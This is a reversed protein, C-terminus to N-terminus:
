ASCGQGIKESTETETKYNIIYLCEKMLEARVILRQVRRLRIRPRALSTSHALTKPVPRTQSAKATAKRIGLRKLRSKPSPARVAAKMGVKVSYRSFFPSSSAHLSTLTTAVARARRRVSTTRATSVERKTARLDTESSALHSFVRSSEAM